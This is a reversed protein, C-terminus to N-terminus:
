HWLLPYAAFVEPLLAKPAVKRTCTSIFVNCFVGAAILVESGFPFQLPVLLVKEHLLPLPTTNKGRGGSDCVVEEQAPYTRITEPFTRSRRRWRLAPAKQKIALKTEIALKM